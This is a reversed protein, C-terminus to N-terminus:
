FQIYLPLRIKLDASLHQNTELYNYSALIEMMFMSIGVGVSFGLKSTEETYNNRNSTLKFQHLKQFYTFNGSVEVIPILLVINELLPAFFYRIGLNIPLASTAYNSYESTQYFEQSGPYQEFGVKAFLFIPLYENDTYSIELNFGYGLETSSAFFDLPLRPGVGFGIFVGRAKDPPPTSAILVGSFILIILIIKKM